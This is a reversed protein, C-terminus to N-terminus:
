KKKSAEEVQTRPAGGEGATQANSTELDIKKGLSKNPPNQRIGSARPYGATDLAAHWRADEFGKLVNEEGVKLVPVEISGTLARLKDAAAPQSANFETYPIGRQNLLTRAKDCLEGCDAAFLTVPYKKQALQTAIPTQDVEIYNGGAKKQQVQKADNPPPQDTYHVKGEKDVWRYLQASAAGAVVTLLVIILFRIM